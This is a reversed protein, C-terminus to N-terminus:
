EETPKPAPDNTPVVSNDVAVRTGNKLKLQGSTVVKDGVTLGKLITTQDGRTEGTTVFRQQVTLLPKGKKDKGKNEITFVVDGYSNFSIATKPLTIYEQPKGTEVTITAFMGPVLDNEANSLTAEVLVNRTNTDIVPNITTIKGSFVKRPFVDTVIQAIQDVKMDNLQQQPVYFDAHITSLDQLPVITDGTNLYQGRNITSIGLRGSFPARITKKKVIAAQQEMQAKLSKYNAVDADLAAKSIAKIAYLATSRDFTIKALATNAELSRLQAIDSSANLQVLLDGEKVTDGSKFYIQEVMAPLETTVNVGRAARLSGYYKKESLWPEKKAEMASVTAIVEQSAFYRKMMINSFTKYAIISGFLLGVFVLMIIMRKKM